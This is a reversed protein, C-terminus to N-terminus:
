IYFFDEDYNKIETDINLPDKSIRNIYLKWKYSMLGKNKNICLKKVSDINPIDFTKLNFKKINIIEGNSYEIDDNNIDGYILAMKIKNNIERMKATSLNYKDGLKLIYNIFIIERLKKKRINKWNNNEWKEFENKCGKYKLTKILIDCIKKHINEPTEGKYLYNKNKCIFTDSTVSVHKPTIGQSFDDFLQRWFDDSCLNACIIFVPFIISM